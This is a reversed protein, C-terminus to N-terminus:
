EAGGIMGTITAHLGKLTLSTEPFEGRFVAIRAALPALVHRQDEGPQLQAVWQMDNSVLVRVLAAALRNRIPPYLLTQAEARQDPTGYDRAYGAASHFSRSLTNLETLDAAAWPINPYLLYGLAQQVSFSLREAPTPLQTYRDAVKLIFDPDGLRGMQHLLTKARTLALAGEQEAYGNRGLFSHEVGLATAMQMFDNDGPNIPLAGTTWVIGTNEAIGAALEIELAIGSIGFVESGTTADTVVTDSRYGGHIRVEAGSGVKVAVGAMAKYQFLSHRSGWARAAGLDLSMPGLNGFLSLGAGGALAAFKERGAGSSHIALASVRLGVSKSELDM